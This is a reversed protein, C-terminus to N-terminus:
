HNHYLTLSYFAAETYWCGCVLLLMPDGEHDCGLLIASLVRGLQEFTYLGHGFKWRLGMILLKSRTGLGCAMTQWQSGPQLLPPRACLVYQPHTLACARLEMKILLLYLHKSSACISSHASAQGSIM